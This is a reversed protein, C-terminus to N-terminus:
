SQERSASEGNKSPQVPQSSQVPQSTGPPQKARREGAAVAQGFLFTKLADPTWRSVTRSLDQILRLTKVEGAWHELLVADDVQNLIGDVFLLLVVADDLQGLGPIFDPILDWPSVLYVALGALAMKTRAPVREDALLRPVLLAVRPLALLTEKVWPTQVARRLGAAFGAFRTEGV